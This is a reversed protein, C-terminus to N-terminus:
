IFKKSMSSSGYRVAIIAEFSMAVGQLQMLFIAAVSLHLATGDMNMAAGLPLVFRSVRPDVGHKEEM